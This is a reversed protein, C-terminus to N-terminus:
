NALKLLVYKVFRFNGRKRKKFKRVRTIIEVRFQEKNFKNEKVESKFEKVGKQRVRQCFHWM